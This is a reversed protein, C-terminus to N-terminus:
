KPLADPASPPNNFGKDTYRSGFLHNLYARARKVQLHDPLGYNDAAAGPRQIRIEIAGFFGRKIFVAEIEPLAYRRWGPDSEDKIVKPGRVDTPKGYVEGVLGPIGLGAAIGARISLGVGLPVAIIGERALGLYWNKLGGTSFVPGVTELIHWEGPYPELNQEEGM